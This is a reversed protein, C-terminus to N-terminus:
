QDPQKDFQKNIESEDNPLDDVYKDFTAIEVKTSWKPGCFDVVFKNLVKAFDLSGEKKLLRKFRWMGFITDSKHLRNYLDIKDSLSDTVYIKYSVVKTAPDVALEVAQVDKHVISGCFFLQNKIGDTILGNNLLWRQQDVYELLEKSDLSEDNM